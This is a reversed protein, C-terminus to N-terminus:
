KTRRTRAGAGAIFRGLAQSPRMNGLIRPIRYILRSLLIVEHHGGRMDRSISPKTACRKVAKNNIIDGDRPRRYFIHQGLRCTPTVHHRWYPHVTVAHYYTAGRTMDVVAGALTERAVRRATQWAAGHVWAHRRGRTWSFQHPRYVERCVGERSITARNLTVLAVAYQGALPEGRAEHYVNLAVCTVAQM